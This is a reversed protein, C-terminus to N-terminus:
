EMIGASREVTSQVTISLELERWAADWQTQIQAWRSPQAIGARRKLGLFDMDWHQALELTHAAREGVRRELQRQLFEAEERKLQRESQIVRASVRCLLELGTLRDELFAPRCQVQAGTLSLTVQAGDPLRVEEARGFLQGELLELGLAAEGRVFGVLRGQSLVAYGDSRLTQEGGEGGDGERAPGLALAPLYTSGGQALATMLEGATRSIAAAGVESDAQLQELRESVGETGAGQIAQRATGGRVVWMQVGFGLAADRGLYDLVTAIGQAAREEGLLIQDVYGYYIFTDGMGQIRQSAAGISPGDASLVLADQKEAGVGSARSGTSVTLEVETQTGDLGMTRLLAMDGMERAYPFIGQGSCGSLVLVAASLAAVMKSKM